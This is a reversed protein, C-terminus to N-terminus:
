GMEGESDSSCLWYLPHRSQRTWGGHWDENCLKEDCTTEPLPPAQCIYPQEPSLSRSIPTMQSYFYYILDVASVGISHVKSMQEYSDNESPQILINNFRQGAPSEEWERHAKMFVRSSKRAQARQISDVVRWAHAMAAADTAGKKQIQWQRYYVMGYITLSLTTALHYYFDM